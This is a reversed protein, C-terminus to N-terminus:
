CGKKLWVYKIICNKESLSYETIGNSQNNNPNVCLWISYVKKISDYDSSVFERGYQSSIERAVYYIGRNLLEYGPNFENQAEINVIIKRIGDDAEDYGPVYVDFILDFSIEGEGIIKNENTKGTIKESMNGNTLVKEYADGYILAEGNRKEEKVKYIDANTEGPHVKRSGIEVNEICEVIDSTEMGSFEKMTGKLIVALIEKHALLTKTETDYASKMDTIELDKVWLKQKTM